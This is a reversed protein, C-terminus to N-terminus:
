IRRATVSGVYATSLILFSLSALLLHVLSLWEEFGEGVDWSLIYAAGILMNVVYLATSGWIWRCLTSKANLENWAFWSAVLLAVGVAGVLFRHIM